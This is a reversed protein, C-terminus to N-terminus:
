DEFDDPLPHGPDTGSPRGAPAPMVITTSGDPNVILQPQVSSVPESRSPSYARALLALNTWGRAGAVAVTWAAMQQVLAANDRRAAAVVIGYGCEAALYPCGHTEAERVLEIGDEDGGTSFGALFAVRRAEWSVRWQARSTDLEGLVRRAEHSYGVAAWCWAAEVILLSVVPHAPAYATVRRAEGELMQATSVLRVWDSSTRMVKGEAVLLYAHAWAQNGRSSVREKAQAIYGLAEEPARRATALDALVALSQAAVDSQQVEDALSRAREALRKARQHAGRMVELEALLVSNYAEARLNKSAVAAQLGLEAARAAAPIDGLAAYIRAKWSAVRAGHVTGEIDVGHLAAEADRFLSQEWAARALLVALPERRFVGVSSDALGQSRDLYEPVRAYERLRIALDAAQQLAEWLVPASLEDRAVLNRIRQNARELDGSSGRLALARALALVLEPNGEIEQDELSDVGRIVDEPTVSTGQGFWDRVLAAVSDVSRGARQFSGASLGLAMSANGEDGQQSERIVEHVHLRPGSFGMVPVLFRYEVLRSAIGSSALLAASDTPFPEASAGVSKILDWASKGLFKECVRLVAAWPVDPATPLSKVGDIWLDEISSAPAESLAAFVSGRLLVAALANGHSRRWLEARVSEPVSWNVCWSQWSAPSPRPVPIVAAGPVSVAKANTAAFIRLRSERSALYEVLDHIPGQRPAWNDFALAVADPASDNVYTILRQARREPDVPMPEIPIVDTAFPTVVTRITRELLDADPEYALDVLGTTWGATALEDLWLRLLSSKGSGAEGTVVTFKFQSVWDLVSPGETHFEPQIEGFWGTLHPVLNRSAQTELGAVLDATAPLSRLLNVLRTWVEDSPTRGGTEILAVYGQSVGLRRALVRQSWDLRRRADRILAGGEVASVTSVAGRGPLSTSAGHGMM